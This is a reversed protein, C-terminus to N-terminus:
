LFSGFLFEPTFFYLLQFLINVLLTLLLTSSCYHLGSCPDVSTKWEPKRVSCFFLFHLFIFLRLSRSTHFCWTYWFLCLFFRLFLFSLLLCFFFKIFFILWVNLFSLFIWLIDLSYVWISGYRSGGYDFQHIGFLCQFNPSWSLFYNVMYLSVQMLNVPSKEVFVMSTLLWHSSLILINSFPEVLIDLNM